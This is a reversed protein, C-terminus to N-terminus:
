FCQPFSALFGSVALDARADLVRFRSFRSFSPPLASDCYPKLIRDAAATAAAAM